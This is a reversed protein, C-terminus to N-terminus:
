LIFDSWSITLVKSVILSLFTLNTLLYSIFAYVHTHIHIKHIHSHTATTTVTHTKHSHKLRTLQVSIKRTWYSYLWLTQKSLSVLSRLSWSMVGLEPRPGSDIQRMSWFLVSAFHRFFAGVQDNSICQTFIKSSPVSITIPIFLSSATPLTIPYSPLLSSIQRQSLHSSFM